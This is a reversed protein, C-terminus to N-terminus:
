VDEGKVWCREYYGCWKPNCSWSDPNRQFLGAEIARHMMDLIQFLREEDADGVDAMATASNTDRKGAWLYDIAMRDPNSGTAARWAYRYAALQRRHGSEIVINGSSAGSPSKGATKTDRLTVVGCHTTVADLVTTLTWDRGEPALEIKKECALPRGTSPGVVEVYRRSMRIARDKVAGKDEDQKDWEVPPGDPYKDDKGLSFREFAEGALAEAEELPLAARAAEPTWEKISMGRKHWEEAAVHATKGAVLAAGPPTIVGRVYRWGWAANCKLWTNVQSPSRHKSM